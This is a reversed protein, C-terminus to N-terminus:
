DGLISGFGTMSVLYHRKFLAKFPLIGYPVGQYDLTLTTEPRANGLSLTHFPEMLKIAFELTPWLQKILIGVLIPLWPLTHTISNLRTFSIVPIFPLCIAMFAIYALLTYTRLIIPHPSQPKGRETQNESDTTQK